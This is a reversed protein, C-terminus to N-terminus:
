RPAQEDPDIARALQRLQRAVTRLITLDPKAARTRRPQRALAAAHLEARVEAPLHGLLLLIERKGATALGGPLLRRLDVELERIYYADILQEAEAAAGDSLDTWVIEGPLWRLRDGPRFDRLGRPSGLNCLPASKASAVAERLLALGLTMLRAGNAILQHLAADKPGVLLVKLLSRVHEDHLLATRRGAEAPSFRVRARVGTGRRFFLPPPAALGGAVGQAPPPAM